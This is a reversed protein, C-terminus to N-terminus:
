EWLNVSRAWAARDAPLSSIWTARQGAARRSLAERFFEDSLASFPLDAVQRPTASSALEVVAARLRAPDNLSSAWQWASAPDNQEWKAALSRVGNLNNRESPLLDLLAASEMLNGITEAPRSRILESAIGRSQTPPMGAIVQKLSEQDLTGSAILGALAQNRKAADHIGLAAELAAHRDAKAVTAFGEKVWEDPYSVGSRAPQSPNAVMWELAAAPDEAAWIGVATKLHQRYKSIAPLTALAAVVTAPDKKMWKREGGWSFRNFDGARAALEVGKVVDQELVSDIVAVRFRDGMRKDTIASVADMAADPNSAAWVRLLDPAFEEFLLPDFDRRLWTWFGDPDAEAWLRASLRASESSSLRSQFFAPWQDRRLTAAHDVLARMGASAAPAEDRNRSKHKEAVPPTPAQTSNEFVPLGIGILFGAAAALTTIIPPKM